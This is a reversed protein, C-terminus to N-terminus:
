SCKLWGHTRRPLGSQHAFFMDHLEKIETQLCMRLEAPFKVHEKIQEYSRRALGERDGNQILNHCVGCANWGGVSEGVPSHQFNEAPYYWSIDKEGCFDCLPIPM